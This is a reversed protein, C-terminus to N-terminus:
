AGQQPQEKPKVSLWGCFAAVPVNSQNVFTVVGDQATFSNAEVDHTSGDKLTVVFNM